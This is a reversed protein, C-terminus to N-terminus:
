VEAAFRDLRRRFRRIPLWAVGTMAVAMGSWIGPGGLDVALGPVVGTPLGLGRSAAVAIAIPM